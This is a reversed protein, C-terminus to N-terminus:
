KKRTYEKYEYDSEMSKRLDPYNINELRTNATVLGQSAKNVDELAIELRYKCYDEFEQEKRAAVDEKVTKMLENIKQNM